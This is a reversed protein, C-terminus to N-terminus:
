MYTLIVAQYLYSQQNAIVYNVGGIMWNFTYLSCNM